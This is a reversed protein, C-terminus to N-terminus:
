EMLLNKDDRRMKKIKKDRIMKELNEWSKV